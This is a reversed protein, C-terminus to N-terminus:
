RSEERIEALRDRVARLMAEAEESEKPDFEGRRRLAMLRDLFERMHERVGSSSRPPPVRGELSHLRRELGNM